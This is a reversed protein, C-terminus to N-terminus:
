AGLAVLLERLRSCFREIESVTNYLYASARLAGNPLGLAGFLPHACHLGTRTMMAYNDSLSVGLDDLSVPLDIGSISAIPLAHPTKAMLVRVGPLERVGADLAEALKRGHNEVAEWGCNQIFRTAAALGIAGAINPTGAEFRAPGNQLAYGRSTVQTVVGGGLDRPSLRELAERRGYLVGTGTPGLMKHGSFALFDCGIASVDLRIHPASQAADIVSLIGAERAVRCIEYIPQVVGTVNSAHAVVIARTRKGLLKRFAEPDIPETATTEILKLKARAMWPLLSSHHEAVTSIIEDDPELDMGAAIMNLSVTTNPTFVIEESACAGIFRAVQRRASEYADSAEESLAHRGRHVNARYERYYSHEASLVSEPTLSSAANDLYILQAGNVHRKLIPFCRRIAEVDYEGSSNTNM